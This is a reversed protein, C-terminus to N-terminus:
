PQSNGPMCVPISESLLFGSNVPHGLRYVRIRAKNKPWGIFNVFGWDQFNQYASLLKVAKSIKVRTYRNTTHAKPAKLKPPNTPRRENERIMTAPTRVVNLCRNTRKRPMTRANALRVRVQISYIWRAQLRVKRLARRPM